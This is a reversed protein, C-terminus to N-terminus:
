LFMGILSGVILMYRQGTHQALKRIKQKLELREDELREVEKQSVGWYLCMGIFSGVVLAHRDFEGSYAHVETWYTSSVEQDETETGAELRGTEGSRETFSRTNNSKPIKM